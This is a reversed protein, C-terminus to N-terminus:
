DYQMQAQLYDDVVKEVLHKPYPVGTYLEFQKCGQIFALRLGVRTKLSGSILENTGNTAIYIDDVPTANFIISNSISPITTWNERTITQYPINRLEAVKIVTKAYGGDGLIILRKTKMDPGYYDNLVENVADFDTNFLIIRGNVNIATNASGINACNSIDDAHALAKVKFPSSIGAGEIDLTRMANFADKIDSVTFSKYICNLNLHQFAANHMICGFNGANGSFSCFLKTNRDVLHDGIKYDVM